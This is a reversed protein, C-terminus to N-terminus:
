HVHSIYEVSGAISSAVQETGLHHYTIIGLLKTTTEQININLRLRTFKAEVENTKAEPQPRLGPLQPRSAGVILWLSKVWTYAVYQAYKQRVLLHVVCKNLARLWTVYASHASSPM